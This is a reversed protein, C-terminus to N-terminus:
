NLWLRPLPGGLSLRLAATLDHRLSEGDAACFRVATLGNFSSAGVEGRLGETARLSAVVDDDAPTVLLTALAIGGDAVAKRALRAAIDGDLTLSEAYILRGGRRIRWRDALHGIAVTEGMDRRGFVVAEALVLRADDALDVDISRALRAGDFLITERPLWALRGGSGVTMAVTMAADDGLSRYVKEASVSTVTLSAGEGVKVGFAFRDGGAIGGATNITVADLTAAAPGPFRVRLSGSEAVRVRRTAGDRVAVELAMTGAARNAAFTRNRGAVGAHVGV